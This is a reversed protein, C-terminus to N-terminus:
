LLLANSLEEFAAPAPPNNILDEELYSKASDLLEQSDRFHGLGVNCSSCLLGRVHSQDHCHDVVPTGPQIGSTAKTYDPELFEVSCVKCKNDQEVRMAEFAEETLGYSKKIHWFRQYKANAAYEEPTRNARYKADAKRRSASKEEPTMAMPYIRQSHTFTHISPHVTIDELFGDTEVDARWRGSM